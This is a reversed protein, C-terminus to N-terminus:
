LMVYLVKLLFTSILFNHKLFMLIDNRKHLTKALKEFCLTKLKKVGRTVKSTNQMGIEAIKRFLLLIHM